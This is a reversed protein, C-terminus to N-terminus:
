GRFAPLVPDERCLDAELHALVHREGESLM